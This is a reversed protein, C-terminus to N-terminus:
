SGSTTQACNTTSSSEKHVGHMPLYYSSQVPTQMEEKTVLQAHGLDLYEQVVAQFKSWTGKKLLSAENRQFRILAKNRSEGLELETDKKPLSVMYKGAHPVFAHTSDYHEQIKQEELSLLCAPKPPEEVEWFRVLAQDTDDVVKSAATYGPLPQPTSSTEPTYNGMVGWGLVTNWATPTGEPGTKREPLLVKNLLSGNLLLDIIRPEDFYPDALQLGNLHHLQKRSPVGPKPMYETVSPMSVVQMMRSWNNRCLSSMTVNATPYAPTKNPSQIGKIYKKTPLKELELTKMVKTSIINVDSGSDLVARVVLTKGSPGTLKVRSTMMLSAEEEEEPPSTAVNATGTPPQAAPAGAEQHIM